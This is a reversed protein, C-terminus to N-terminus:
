SFVETFSEDGDDGDFYGFRLKLSLRLRLQAVAFHTAGDILCNAFSQGIVQFFMRFFGFQNDVFHYKGCSGTYCGALSTLGYLAFRGHAASAHGALQGVAGALVGFFAFQEEDLTVRCASRGLLSSVTLVLGDQGQATFDQVYFFGHPVFGEFAIFHVVDNLCQTNAEAQVAFVTLFGVDVLQAVLLHNDHGIGIDISRVDVRQDHRQEETVERLNDLLAVQVDSSGREVETCLTLYFFVAPGVLLAM